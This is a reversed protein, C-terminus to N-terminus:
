LYSLLTQASKNTCVTCAYIICVGKESYRVFREREWRVERGSRWDRGSKWNGGGGGWSRSDKWNGPWVERSRSRSNRM